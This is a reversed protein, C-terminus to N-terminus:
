DHSVYESVHLGDTENAIGRRQLQKPRDFALTQIRRRCRESKQSFLSRGECALLQPNQVNVYARESAQKIKLVDGIRHM